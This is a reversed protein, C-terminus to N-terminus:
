VKKVRTPAVGQPGANGLDVLIQGQMLILCKPSRRVSTFSPHIDLCM